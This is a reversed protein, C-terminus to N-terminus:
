TKPEKLFEKVEEKQVKKNAKKKYSLILRYKIRDKTKFWNFHLALGFLLSVIPIIFRLPVSVYPDPILTLLLQAILNIITNVIIPVVKLRNEAKAVFGKLEEKAKSDIEEEKKALDLAMNKYKLYEQETVGYLEQVKQLQAELYNKEQNFKIREENFKATESVVTSQRIEELIDPIDKYSYENPEILMPRIAQTQLGYCKLAIVEAETIEGRASLEQVNECFKNIAYQSPEMATYCDAILKETAITECCKIGSRTWIYTGLFIDSIAPPITNKVFHQNHFVKCAYVLNRNTTLLFTNSGSISYTQHGQKKRYIAEISKIDYEITEEVRDTIEINNKEYCCKIIGELENREVQYKHDEETIENDDITIKFRICKSAISSIVSEVYKKDKKSSMLYRLASSAKQPDYSTSDIWKECGYLIYNVEDRTHSFMFLKAGKSLLKNVLDTSASERYEGYFGILNLFFRTDLYVISGKFDYNSEASEGITLADVLLAGITIKKITEFMDKNQEYSNIVFSAILSRNKETPVISEFEESLIRASNAQVFTYLLKKSESVDLKEGYNQQAYEIMAKIVTEISDKVSERKETLDVKTIKDLNPLWVHRSQSYVIYEKKQLISLLKIAPQSPLRIGFENEFDDAFPGVEIANYGKKRILEVAMPVFSSIFDEEIWSSKALAYTNLIVDTRDKQITKM